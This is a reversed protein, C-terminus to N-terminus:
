TAPEASVKHRNTITRSRNCGRACDTNALLFRSVGQDHSLTIVTLRDVSKFHGPVALEIYPRAPCLQIIKVLCSKKAETSSITM